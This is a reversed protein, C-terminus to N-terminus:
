LTDDLHTSATAKTLFAAYDLSHLVANLPVVKSISCGIKIDAILGVKVAEVVHEVFPQSKLNIVNIVKVKDNLVPVHDQDDVVAFLEELLM